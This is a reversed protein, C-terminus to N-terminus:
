GPRLFPAMSAITGKAENLTVVSAFGAGVHLPLNVGM